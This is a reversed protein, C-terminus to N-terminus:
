ESACFDQLKWSDGFITASSEIGSSPTKFDDMADDNYNGCLGHVKGKWRVALTIYIRTRRDWKIQVGMGPIEVVIFVGARHIVM